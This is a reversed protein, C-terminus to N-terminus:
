SAEHVFALAQAGGEVALWHIPQGHRQPPVEGDVVLAGGVQGGGGEFPLGL